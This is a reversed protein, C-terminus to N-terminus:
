RSVGSRESLAPSLHPLLCVHKYDASPGGPQGGRNGCALPTKPHDKRVARFWGDGFCASFPEQRICYRRQSSESNFEAFHIARRQLANSKLILM